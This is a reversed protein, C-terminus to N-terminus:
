LCVLVHNWPIVYM